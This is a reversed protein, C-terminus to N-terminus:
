LRVGPASRRRQAAIKLLILYGVLDDATEELSEDPLAHGRCLRSIKDDIRVKIQEVNDARSFVRLPRLASDGYAVNKRLLLAKIFDCADIIEQQTQSVPTAGEAPAEPEDPKFKAM